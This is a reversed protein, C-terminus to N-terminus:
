RLRRWPSAMVDHEWGLSLGARRARARFVVLAIANSFGLRRAIEDQSLAARRRLETAHYLRGLRLLVTLSPAGSSRCRRSATKRDIEFRQAVDAVSHKRYANRLCWLAITRGEGIPLAAGADRIIREPVPALTRRRLCSFVRSLDTETEVRFLEDAGALAFARAIGHGSDERRACVLIAAHPLVSRLRAVVPDAIEGSQRRARVVLVSARPYDGRAIHHVAVDL